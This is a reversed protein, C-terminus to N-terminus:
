PKLKDERVNRMENTATVVGNTVQLVTVREYTHYGKALTEQGSVIHLAGSYWDAQIPLKRGPFLFTLSFPQRNTTASFSALYLRSDRVEWGATYGKYNATSPVDFRPIAPLRRLFDNLPRALMSRQQGAFTVADRAQETAFTQFAVALIALVILSRTLTQSHMTRSAAWSWFQAIRAAWYTRIALQGLEGANTGTIQNPKM